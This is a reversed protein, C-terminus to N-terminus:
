LDYILWEKCKCVIFSNGGIRRLYTIIIFYGHLEQNYQHIYNNTFKFNCKDYLSCTFILTKAAHFDSCLEVMLFTLHIGVNRTFAAKVIQVFCNIFLFLKKRLKDDRGLNSTFNDVVRFLLKGVIYFNLFKNWIFVALANADLISNFSFMINKKIETNTKSIM